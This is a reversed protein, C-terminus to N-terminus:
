WPVFLIILVIVLVAVLAGMLVNRQRWSPKPKGPYEHRNGTEASSGPLSISRRRYTRAPCTCAVHLAGVGMDIEPM